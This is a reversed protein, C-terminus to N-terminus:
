FNFASQVLPNVLSSLDLSIEALDRLYTWFSVAIGFHTSLDSAQKAAVAPLFSYLLNNEELHNMKGVTQNCKQIGFLSSLHILM